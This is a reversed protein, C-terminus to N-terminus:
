KEGGGEPPLFTVESQNEGPGFPSIKLTGVYWSKSNFDSSFNADAPTFTRTFQYKKIGAADFIRVVCNQTEAGSYYNMFIRFNTTTPLSYFRINEPGYATVNDVDLEIHYGGTKYVKDNWLVHKGGFGDDVHMDVDGIGSWSLQIRAVSPPTNSTVKLVPSRGLPTTGSYAIACVYNNGSNFIIQSNAQPGVLLMTQSEGNVWSEIRLNPQALAQPSLTASLALFGKTTTGWIPGSTGAVLTSSDLASVNSTGQIVNTPLTLGLGVAEVAFDPTALTAPGQDSNSSCALLLGLGAAVALRKLLSRQM